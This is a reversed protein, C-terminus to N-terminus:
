VNCIVKEARVNIAPDNIHNHVFPGLDVPSNQTQGIVHHSEFSIPVDKHPQVSSLQLREHIQKLRTQCREIGTIQKLFGKQSTRIYWSKSSRHELEGQTYICPNTCM